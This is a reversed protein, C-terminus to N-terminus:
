KHANSQELAQLKSQLRQPHEPNLELARRYGKGAARKKDLARAIDAYHEWIIADDAVLAVVSQITEWAQELHGVTYQYWALSDLYYGNEPDLSLAKQILIKARDLNKNEEVLTYGLFNLAQAHEPDQDIIHEMRQIAQHVRDQEYEIVGLQFLIEVNDPMVQLGTRLVRYASQTDDRSRFIKAQLMYFFTQKPYHSQGQQALTLAAETNNQQWLLQCRLAMARPHLDSDQPIQRLLTLARDVDSSLEWALIARYLFGRPANAIKPGLTDLARQAHEYFSHQVFLGIGSLITDPQSTRSTILDLAKDPHNLKLTIEILRLLIDQNTEGLELLTAYADQAAVFDRSLEYQYALEAWAKRFGPNKQTALQLHHIAQKRNDLGDHAQAMFYHVNASRVKEPFGQLIDLARSPQRKQLLLRALRSHFIWDRPHQNLAQEIHTLAREQKDRAWLTRILALTLMPHEPSAKLGQRAAMEAQAYAEKRWLRNIKELYLEPAQDFELAANLAQLAEDGSQHLSRLYAYSAKAEDSMAPPTSLEPRPVSPTVPACGPLGTATGLFLGLAIFLIPFPM